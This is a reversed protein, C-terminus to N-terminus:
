KRFILLFFSKPLLTLYYKIYKKLANFIQIYSPLTSFLKQGTVTLPLIFINLFNISKVRWITYKLNYDM